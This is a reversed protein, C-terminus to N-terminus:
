RPELVVLSVSPLPLATEYRLAGDVAGVERPQGITEL